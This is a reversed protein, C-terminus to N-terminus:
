ATAVGCSTIGQEYKYQEAAPGAGCVKRLVDGTQGKFLEYHLDALRDDSKKSVRNRRAADRESVMGARFFRETAADWTLEYRLESSLPTPDHHLAWDLRDCFESKTTYFLCNPFQKFFQNSPHDPIIVFKGMAVAEATSTCLVETVSPNVFTKYESSIAAHDKRGAFTVPLPPSRKWFRKEDDAHAMYAQRIEEEEPGSGYVTMAFYEGKQKKYSQQLELLRDLGKAWLLKGVFYVGNGTPAEVDLFQKRIGHVNCVVEKEPCYSPLVDSLKVVKDCYARVPWKSLAGILPGTVMGLYPHSQGYAKYNTHLIGIVHRFKVRWSQKGPARYWNLHEPEELCCVADEEIPLRECFDGMAFISSLRSHYRAPYFHLRLAQVDLSPRLWDRIYREQDERTATEWEPGYLEVRDEPDELWPIVLTVTSAIQREEFYKVLYAARLLPNVATGTFWPLAATTVIWYPRPRSFDSEETAKTDSLLLEEDTYELEDFLSMWSSSRSFPSENSSRFYPSCSESPRATTEILLLPQKRQPLIRAFCKDTEPEESMLTSSSSDTEEAFSQRRDPKTAQNGM